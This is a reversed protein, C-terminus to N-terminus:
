EELPNLHTLVACCMTGAFHTVNVPTHKTPPHDGQDCIHEHHRIILCSLSEKAATSGHVTTCMSVYTDCLVTYLRAIPLNSGWCLAFMFHVHRVDQLVHVVKVPIGFLDVPFLFHSNCVETARTSLVMHNVIASGSENCDLEIDQRPFIDVDM